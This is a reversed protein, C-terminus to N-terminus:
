LGLVFTRGPACVGFMLRNTREADGFERSRAPWDEMHDTARNHAHNEWPDRGWECYFHEM